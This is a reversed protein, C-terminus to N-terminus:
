RVRSLFFSITIPETRNLVFFQLDVKFGNNDYDPFVTIRSVRVRPEYNELTQEIENQLNTAIIADMPEFLMKRINSGIEPHFPKEYHATLLLNKVSNIVSQVGIHKNIDKKIPHVVFNLDLDSYEKPQSIVTIAM